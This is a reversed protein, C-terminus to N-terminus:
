LVLHHYFGRHDYHYSGEVLATATSVQYLTHHAGQHDEKVDRTMTQGKREQPRTGRTQAQSRTDGTGQAYDTGGRSGAQDGGGLTPQLVGHAAQSPHPPPRRGSRGPRRHHFVTGPSSM